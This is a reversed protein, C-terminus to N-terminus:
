GLLALRRELHARVARSAPIPPPNLAYHEPPHSYASLDFTRAAEPVTIDKISDVFGLALAQGADMWTEAMMMQRVEQEEQGSVRAYDKAIQDDVADMVSAQQRLEEANGLAFSWSRHIMYFAGPAMHVESATMVPFTAASAALGDIHAVIVAPHEALAVQMARGSLADGGPSNVRLHITDVDLTALDLAFSHADIGWWDDIVDYVYVTAERGESEMRVRPKDTPNQRILNMLQRPNM